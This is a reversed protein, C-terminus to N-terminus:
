RLMGLMKSREGAMEDWERAKENWKGTVKSWKWASGKMEGTLAPIAKKKEPLFADKQGNKASQHCVWSPEGSFM